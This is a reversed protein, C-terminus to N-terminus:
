TRWPSIEKRPELMQNSDLVNALSTALKDSFEELDNPSKIEETNIEKLLNNLKLNIKKWSKSNTNYKKTSKFSNKEIKQKIKLNLEATVIFHDSELYTCDLIEAQDLSRVLTRSVFIFDIRSATTQTSNTEVRSFKKIDPNCYRFSDTFDFNNILDVPMQKPKRNSPSSNEMSSPVPTL